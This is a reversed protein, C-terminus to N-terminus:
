GVVGGLAAVMAWVLLIFSETRLARSMAVSRCHTFLNTLNHSICARSHNEIVWQGGQPM